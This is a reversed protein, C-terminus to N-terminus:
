PDLYVSTFFSVLHPRFDSTDRGISVPAVHSYSYYARLTKQPLPSSKFIAGGRTLDNGAVRQKECM